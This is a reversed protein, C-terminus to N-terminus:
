CKLKYISLILRKTVGKLRMWLLKYFRMSHILRSRLLPSKRTNDNPVEANLIHMMKLAYNLDGQQLAIFFAVQYVADFCTCNVYKNFLIRPFISNSHLFDGILKFSLMIDQEDMNLFFHKCDIYLLEDLRYSIRADAYTLAKESKDFYLLSHVYFNDNYFDVSRRKSVSNPVDRYNTVIDKIFTMKKVFPLMSFLLFGDPSTVCDERYRLKNEKYFQLNLLMTVHYGSSYLAYEPFDLPVFNQMEVPPLFVGKEKGQLSVLRLGGVIVESKYQRAAASLAWLAGADLYDDADASLLYHGTAQEIGVNRTAGEGLNVTNHLVRICSNNSAYERLIEFSNDNSCDDVCILEFDAFSQQLVSDLCCRLYPAANYVPIVISIEPM